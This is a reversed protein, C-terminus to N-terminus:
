NYNLYSKELFYLYIHANMGGYKIDKIPIAGYMKLFSESLIMRDWSIVQSQPSFFLCCRLFSARKVCVSFKKSFQTSEM